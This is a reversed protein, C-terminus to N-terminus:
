ALMIKPRPLVLEEYGISVADVQDDHVVDPFPELEEIFDKNWAGRVMFFRGAEMLNLWPIARLLKDFGKPPNRKTVRIEGLLADKVDTYIGDFAGVGEIAIRLINDKAKDAWATEIVLKRMKAWAWQRKTIDILYLNYGDWGLKAGATFDAAQKETCALDWGRILTLGEPLESANIYRIKAVDAQGSSATRPDGCYQSSWEYGPLAAKLPLLFSLPRQEPFLAEGEERGIPDNAGAIARLNIYAFAAHEQGEARLQARYDPGTVHGILDNPHWRTGILFIKGGMAMRTMCDAFFWEIVRRRQLPSEAEARGAHADDIVLWDVKRGSLKSGAPRAILSSGNTFYVGDEKDRGFVPYINPFVRQYAPTDMVQKVEKVFDTLLSRSFGTIAVNIHPERGLLWAVARVCLLRSKGHQPPMSFAHHPPETGQYIGQVKNALFTHVKSLVYHVGPQQPYIVHLFSPFHVRAAKVLRRYIMSFDVDSLGSADQAAAQPPEQQTTMHPRNAKKRTPTPNTTM